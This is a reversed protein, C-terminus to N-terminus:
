LPLKFLRVLKSVSREGDRQAAFVESGRALLLHDFPKAKGDGNGCGLLTGKLDFVEKNVFMKPGDSSLYVGLMDKGIVAYFGERTMVSKEENGM